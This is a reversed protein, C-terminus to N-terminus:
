LQDPGCVGIVQPVWSSAHGILKSPKLRMGILQHKRETEFISKEGGFMKRFISLQKSEQQQVIVVVYGKRLNWM